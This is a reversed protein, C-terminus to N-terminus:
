SGSDDLEPCVSGVSAGVATREQDIFDLELLKSSLEAINREIWNRQDLRMVDGIKADVVSTMTKMTRKQIRITCSYVRRWSEGAAM